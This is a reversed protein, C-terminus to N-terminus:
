SSEVLGLRRRVDESCKESLSKRLTAADQESWVVGISASAAATGSGSGPVEPLNRYDSDLAILSRRLGNVIDVLAVAHEAWRIDQKIQKVAVGGAAMPILLAALGGTAVAIITAAGIAATSGAAGMVFGRAAGSHRRLEVMAAKYGRIFCVIAEPDKDLAVWCVGANLASMSYLVHDHENSGMSRMFEEAAKELYNKRSSVDTSPQGALEVWIRATKFPGELIAKIDRRILQLLRLCEELLKISRILRSTMEPMGPGGQTPSSIAQTVSEFFGGWDTLGQHDSAM